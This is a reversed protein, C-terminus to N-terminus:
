MVTGTLKLVVSPILGLLVVGVASLLLAVGSWGAEAELETIDDSPKRFYMAVILGLYFYTSIVTAIAGVVALWIYGSQIAASFLYYKGFFMALPPIGTLSFMFLAMLAALAPHAKSLGAYDNFELHKGYETELMSAIVLAGIQSFMYAALYVMIGGTGAKSGAVIGMLIYGAQAISSYALMRKINDQAAAVINGFLMSTASLLALLLYVKEAQPSGDPTIANMLPIFASFAAAKGATGMFATVVTPAGQYVDPAWGHFPFAAIKFSLGVIILGTGALLLMPSPAQGVAMRIATLEMKGGTAGYILAMGYLLFGTAFAGLLFYKLGAEASLLTHRMYSALVYFSISMVEIGIFVIMLHNAHAMLMMGSVAFLVLVYFEDFEFNLRQLYGRGATIVLIGASCFVIDFFCPYIGTTLMGDFATGNRYFAAAAAGITMALGGLAYLFVIDRNTRLLASVVISSICIFSIVTIPLAFLLDYLM